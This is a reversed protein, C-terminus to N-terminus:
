LGLGVTRGDRRRLGATYQKELDLDLQLERQKEAQLHGNGDQNNPQQEVKLEGKVGMLKNFKEQRERDGFMATDWHHGTEETTTNKKNGWLLKKKQDATMFGVGVLNKNVLEAAKMAAVKAANLDNTAESDNGHVEGAIGRSGSEQAKDLSSTQKEDADKGYDTTGKSSSFHKSKKAPSEENESAFISKEVPVRINQDKDGCAELEDYKEGKFRYKDNDRGSSSDHRHGRSEEYSALRHSKHDESSRYYDRKEDRDDRDRRKVPRARDFSSDRDKYKLSEKDKEKSRHGSGDHGDHSYRDEKSSYNRSRSHESEERTRDSRSSGRSERGSRSSYRDYHRDSDDARKDPKVRDDQRSYGHSSRSSQREYHRYSDGNRGDDKRRSRYESDKATDEKLLVPSSNHDRHPSGESSSSGGVPSRRRYKRNAADNSPKRFATKTNSGDGPPSPLKSDM